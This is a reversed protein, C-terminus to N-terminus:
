YLGVQRKALAQRWKPWADFATAGVGFAARFAGPSLHQERRSADVGPPLQDAAVALEALAYCLVEAEGHRLQTQSAFVLPEYRGTKQLLKRNLADYFEAARTSAANEDKEFQALEDAAKRRAADARRRGLDDRMAAAQDRLEAAAVIADTVSRRADSVDGGGRAGRIAAAAANLARAASEIQEDVDDSFGDRRAADRTAATETDAKRLRAQLRECAESRAAEEFIRDVRTAHVTAADEFADAAALAGDIPGDDAASAAQAAVAGCKRAQQLESSAQGDNDRGARKNLSDEIRVLRQALAAREDLQAAAAQRVTERKEIAKQDANIAQEVAADAGGVAEVLAAHATRRERSRAVAAAEAATAAAAAKDAALAVMRGAETVVTEADDGDAKRASSIADLAASKAELASADLKADRPAATRLRDLARAAKMAARCAADAKAIAPLEKPDYPLDVTGEEAGQLKVANLPRVADAQLRELEGTADITSSAPTGPDLGELDVAHKALAARCRKARADLAAVVLKMALQAPESDPRLRIVAKFAARSKSLLGARFSAYGLNHLADPEEPSAREYAEYADAWRESALYADGLALWARAFDPRDSVLLQLGASAEDLSGSQADCLAVNFRANFHEPHAAYKKSAVVSFHCRAHSVDGGRLAAVGARCRAAAAADAVVGPPIASRESACADLDDVASAHRGLRSKAVGRYYLMEGDVADLAELAELAEVDRGAEVLAEIRGRAAADRVPTAEARAHAAEFAELAGAVDNLARRSEGLLHWAQTSASRYTVCDEGRWRSSATVTNFAGHVVSLRAPAFDEKAELAAAICQAARSWDAAGHWHLGAGYLAHFRADATCPEDLDIAEFRYAASAHERATSADTGATRAAEIAHIKREIRINDANRAASALLAPPAAALDKLQLYTGLAKELERSGKWQCVMRVMLCTPSDDEGTLLRLAQEYKGQQAFRNAQVLAASAITLEASQYLPKPQFCAM